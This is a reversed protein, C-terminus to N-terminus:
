TELYVARLTASHPPHHNQCAEQAGPQHGAVVFRERPPNLQSKSPRQGPSRIQSGSKVQWGAGGGQVAGEVRQPLRHTSRCLEEDFQPAQAWDHALLSVHLAPAQVPADVQRTVRQVAARARGGARHTLSASRAGARALRAESATAGSAGLQGVIGLVAARASTDAGGTLQTALAIAAGAARDAHLSAGGLAKAAGAQVGVVTASAGRAAVGTLHADVVGTGGLM